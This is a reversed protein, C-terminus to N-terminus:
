NYDELLIELGQLQIIALDDGDEALIRIGEIARILKEKESLKVKPKQVEPESKPIDIAKPPRGRNKVKNDEILVSDRRKSGEEYKKLEEDVEEELFPNPTNLYKYYRSVIERIAYDYDKLMNDSITFDKSKDKLFLVIEPLGFTVNNTKKVLQWKDSFVQTLDLKTQNVLKETFYKYAM